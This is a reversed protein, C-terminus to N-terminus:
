AVGEKAARTVSAALSKGSSGPSVNVVLVTLTSGIVVGTLWGYQSRASPVAMVAVNMPAISYWWTVRHREIAQLVTLPDFRHLLVTTAGSLMPINVGMLMGAIHYLPAIALLVDSNAIGKTSVSVDTKYLANRFTLMAGKPLGTTGSTYTMLAVDNDMDIAVSPPKAGSRTVAVLIADEKDADKMAIPNKTKVLDVNVGKTLMPTIVMFIILLVLMVDIFPVMNIDNMSRRRRGSRGTIAAM